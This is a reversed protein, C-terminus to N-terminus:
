SHRSPIPTMPSEPTYPPPEFRMANRLRSDITGEESTGNERTPSPIVLRRPRHFVPIEKRTPQPTSNALTQASSISGMQPQRSFSSRAVSLATMDSERHSMSTQPSTPTMVQGSLSNDRPRGKSHNTSDTNRSQASSRGSRSYSQIFSVPHAAVRQEEEVNPRMWWKVLFVSSVMILLGALIALVTIIIGDRSHITLGSSPSPDTTASVESAAATQTTYETYTTQTTYNHHITITSTVMSSFQDGKHPFSTTTTTSLTTAESDTQGDPSSGDTDNTQRKAHNSYSRWAHRCRSSWLM